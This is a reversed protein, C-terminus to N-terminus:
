EYSDTETSPKKLNARRIKTSGKCGTVSDRRCGFPNSGYGEDLEPHENVMAIAMEVNCNLSARRHENWKKKSLDQDNDITDDEDDNTGTVTTTPVKPRPPGMSEVVARAADVRHLRDESAALAQLSFEDSM